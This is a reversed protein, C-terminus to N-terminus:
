GGQRLFRGEKRLERKIGSVLDRAHIEQPERIVAEPHRGSVNRVQRLVEPRRGSVSRVKRLVEPGSMAGQSVGCFDSMLEM